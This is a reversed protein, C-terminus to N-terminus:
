LCNEFDSKSVWQEWLWLEWLWRRFVKEVRKEGDRAGRGGLATLTFVTFVNNLVSHVMFKM